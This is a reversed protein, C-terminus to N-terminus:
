SLFKCGTRRRQHVQLKLSFWSAQRKAIIAFYLLLLKIEKMKTWGESVEMFEMRSVKM